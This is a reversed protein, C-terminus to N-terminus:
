SRNRFLYKIEYVIIGIIAGILTTYILFLPICIPLFAERAIHYKRIWLEILAIVPYYIYEFLLYRSGSPPTIFLFVTMTISFIFGWIAGMTIYTFIKNM